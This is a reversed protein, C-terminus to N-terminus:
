EYYICCILFQSQIIKKIVSNRYDFNPQEEGEPVVGPHDGLMAPWFGVTMTLVTGHQGVQKANFVRLLDMREVLGVGSQQAAETGPRRRGALHWQAVVPQGIGSNGGSRGAIVPLPDLEDLGVEDDAEQYFLM